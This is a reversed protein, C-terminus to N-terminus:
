ARRLSGGAPPRPSAAHSFLYSTRAGGPPFRRREGVRDMAPVQATGAQDADAVLPVWAQWPDDPRLRSGAERRVSQNILGDPLVREAVGM